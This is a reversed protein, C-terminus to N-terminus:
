KDAKEETREAKDAAKKAKWEKREDRLSKVSSKCGESIEFDKNAKKFAHICKMLGGGVEKGACGSKEAEATCATAIAAKHEAAKAKHEAKHGGGHNGAFAMGSAAIVIIALAKKM